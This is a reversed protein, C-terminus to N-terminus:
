NKYKGAVEIECFTGAGATNNAVCRYTRAIAYDEKLEYYSKDKFAKHDGNGLWEVTENEGKISWSFDAQM